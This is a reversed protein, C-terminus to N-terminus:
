QFTDILRFRAILWGRSAAPVPPELVFVALKRLREDHAGLGHRRPAIDTRRPPPGHATSFGRAALSHVYSADRQDRGAPSRICWRRAATSAPASHSLAGVGARVRAPTSSRRGVPTLPVTRALHPHGQAPKANRQRMAPQAPRMAQARAAARVAGVRGAPRICRQGAALRFHRVEAASIAMGDHRRGSQAAAQTAALAIVYRRPQVGPGGPRPCQRRGAPQRHAESRCVGSRM